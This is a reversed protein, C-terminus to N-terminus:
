YGHSRGAEGGQAQDGNLEWHSKLVGAARDAGGQGKVRETGM